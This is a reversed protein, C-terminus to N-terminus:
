HSILTGRLDTSGQWNLLMTGLRRTVTMLVIQWSNMPRLGDKNARMLLFFGLPYVDKTPMDAVEEYLKLARAKVFKTGDILPQLYIAVAMSIFENLYKGKDLMQRMVINQGISLAGVDEPIEVEKGGLYFTKPVHEAFRPTEEVVWRVLHWIKEEAEVSDEIKFKKEPSDLLLNFLHVYDREELPPEMNWHRYISEYVRAKMEWYSTPISGVNTKNISVSEM